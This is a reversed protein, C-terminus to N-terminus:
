AQTKRPSRRRARCRCGAPCELAKAIVIPLPEEKKAPPNIVKAPNDHGEGPERATGDWPRAFTPGRGAPIEPHSGAEYALAFDAYEFM